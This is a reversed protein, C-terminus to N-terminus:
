NDHRRVLLRGQLFSEALKLDEAFVKYMEDRFEKSVDCAYNGKVTNYRNLFKLVGLGKGGRIQKLYRLVPDSHRKIQIAIKHLKPWKIQYGVNSADFDVRGDDDLGLFNLTKVYTTRPDTKLENMTVILVQKEPFIQFLRQLRKGFAGWFFYNIKGHIMSAYSAVQGSPDVVRRWAKIFDKETEVGERFKQNHFSIVLDVPDRLCVIIKADSRLRAIQDLAHDSYLYKPTAEGSVLVNADDTHFIAEYAELTPIHTSLHDTSELDQSFFCPEKHPAHAQPHQALWDYLTTTGCKPAGVIFFDPLSM